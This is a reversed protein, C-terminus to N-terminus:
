DFYHLANLDAGTETDIVSPYLGYNKLACGYVALRMQLKERRRELMAAREKHARSNCYRESSNEAEWERADALAYRQISDLLKAATDVDDVTPPTNIRAALEYASKARYYWVRARKTRIAYDNWVPRTALESKM